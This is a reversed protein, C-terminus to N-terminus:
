HLHAQSQRRLKRAPTEIRRPQRGRHVPEQHYGLEQQTGQGAAPNQHHTRPGTTEGRTQRALHVSYRERNGEAVDGLRERLADFDVARETEGTQPDTIETAVDPFLALLKDVNEKTLNPTIGQIREIGSM